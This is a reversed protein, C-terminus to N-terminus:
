EPTVTVLAWTQGVELSYAGQGCGVKRVAPSTRAQTFDPLSNLSRPLAPALTELGARHGPTKPHKTGGCPRASHGGVKSESPTAGECV